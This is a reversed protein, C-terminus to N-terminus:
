RRHNIKRRNLRIRHWSRNRGNLLQKPFPPALHQDKPRGINRGGRGVGVGGRVREVGAFKVLDQGDAGIRAFAPLM